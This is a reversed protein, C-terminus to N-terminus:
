QAHTGRARLGERIARIQGLHHELHDTQMLVIAGVPVREVEGDPKRVGISRSWADPVYELLELIHSRITRILELSVDIPRRAYCWRETWLDQSQTWYWSLTYEGQENGLAAKIGVKWLDDGDAIHHVIQRITWGGGPRPVDLDADSLGRLTEELLAPGKEFRELISDPNDPLQM